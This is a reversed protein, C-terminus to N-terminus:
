GQVENTLAELKSLRDHILAVSSTYSDLLRKEQGRLMRVEAAILNWGDPLAYEFSAPGVLVYGSSVADEFNFIAFSPTKDDSWDPAPLAHIFGEITVTSM